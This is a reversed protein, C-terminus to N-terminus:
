DPLTSWTAELINQGILESEVACISDITTLAGGEKLGIAVSLLRRPPTALLTVRGGEVRACSPMLRSEAEPNIRAEM